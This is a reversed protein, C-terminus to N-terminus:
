GGRVRVGVLHETGAVALSWVEDDMGTGLASWRSGDWKAIRTAAVSGVMTFDGGIYLNGAADVVIANVWSDVGRMANWDADSFTPDIRVPYVADAADNVLIAM